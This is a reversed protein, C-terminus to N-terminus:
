VDARSSVAKKGRGRRNGGSVVVCFGVGRLVLRGGCGSENSGYFSWLKTEKEGTWGQAGDIMGRQPEFLTEVICVGNRPHSLFFACSVVPGGM